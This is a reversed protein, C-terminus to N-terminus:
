CAPLPQLSLGQCRVFRERDAAMQRVKVVARRIKGSEVLRERLPSQLVGAHLPQHGDAAHM